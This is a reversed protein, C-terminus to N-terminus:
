PSLLIKLHHGHKIKITSFYIGVDKAGEYKGGFWAAMLQNPQLEVLTAAHSNNTIPENSIYGQTINIAKPNEKLV